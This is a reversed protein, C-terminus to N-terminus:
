LLLFLIISCPRNPSRTLVVTSSSPDEACLCIVVWVSIALCFIMTIVLYLCTLTQRASTAAASTTPPPPEHMCTCVVPALLPSCLWPFPSSTLPSSPRSPPLTPPLSGQPLKSSAVLPTCGHGHHYRAAAARRSGASTAMAHTISTFVLALLRNRKLMANHCGIESETDTFVTMMSRQYSACWTRCGHCM